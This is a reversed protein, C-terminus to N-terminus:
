TTGELAADFEDWIPALDIMEGTTRARDMALATIGAELADVVDLPLAPLRGNLHDTIDRAMAEDAGYHGRTTGTGPQMDLLRESTDSATVRLYNRVFDGEAMGDVGIISFSRYEDPVNLNTHFSMTAGNAYEVLAVQYDIIDGAGSFADNIGNWRPSMEALYAPEKAPRRSPIYKKRGGFSAIRTPRAGVVGQYLDLDHCCKELMFGGSTETERRWDRMFFSGHYPALHEAAEISMIEGLQGAAQAERVSKYLPSYRLVLGVMLRRRGDHRAILRALEITDPLTSVVPKETFIHPTASELALRLHDLHLNNPTGVMLVDFSHNAMMEEASDYRLPEIGAEALTPMRTPDPDAVAVFEAGPDAASFERVLHALRHGLGIVGYKM